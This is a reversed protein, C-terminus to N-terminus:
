KKERKDDHSKKESQKKKREWASIDSLEQSDIAEADHAEPKFVRKIFRAIPLDEANASLACLTTRSARFINKSDAARTFLSECDNHTYFFVFVSLVDTQLSAKMSTDLWASANRFTNPVSQWFSLFLLVFSHILLPIFCLCCYKITAAFWSAGAVMSWVRSPTHKFLWMVCFQSLFM